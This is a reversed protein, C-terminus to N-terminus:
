EETGYVFGSITGTASVDANLADNAAAALIGNGIPPSAQGIGAPMLPTRLMETTADKLIVSGAVSLSLAYGMLRFKKGSAPTWVAVPTGATIAVAAITKFINPTRLAAQQGGATGDTVGYPVVGVKGQAGASNTIDLINDAGTNAVGGSTTILAILPAVIDGGLASVAGMQLMAQGNGSSVGMPVPAVSSSTVTLEFSTQNSAGNVYVVQWYRARIAACRSFRTSASPSGHSAVTRFAADSTNDTEQITLSAGIVNSFYEVNIFHEGTAQTDIWGSSYTGAALLTASTAIAANKRSIARVVPAAEAGTPATTTAAAVATGGWQSNNAPWPNAGATGQNATVTGSVPQTTQWFTGSVALTGSLKQFIGSLWGRIGSGGTPPTISNGDVGDAAAGTPLPLSAASVPQTGPFFTGSVPVPVALRQVNGSGDVVGIQVPNETPAAGPADPGSVIPDAYIASGDPQGIPVKGLIPGIGPKIAIGNVSSANITGEDAFDLSAGTGVVMAATTNEGSAIEDFTSGGGGGIINSASIKLPILANGTGQGVYVENTDTTVLFEGVAAAPPLNAKLGRRIQITYSM